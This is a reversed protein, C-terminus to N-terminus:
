AGRLPLKGVFNSTLSGLYLHDEFELASTVFNIVKGDGDDFKRIIKGDTGVNVVTARRKLDSVFNFLRPSSALLHKTIKYNYMFELRESNLKILGVWFSGDPALNVNDPAGPLNEVFIDTKGKKEGKLWHRVIRYRWTECILLFDQDKSLALGNAFALNDLFLASENTKATYKFVQGHPRGELFDLHWNHMNFKTSVISFYVNGDWDEIADDAFRIQSGDSAESTLVSVGDERVRLLGKNADCVIIGGEKSQTVGILTDGGIYKWNEWDGNRRMRKIWGDRTATYLSGEKDVCVDEPEKVAGEGLKIINQLKNDRTTTAPKLDLLLPDIPSFYFIQVSLAVLVALLLSSCVTIFSAM